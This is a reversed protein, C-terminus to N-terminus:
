YIIQINNQVSDLKSNLTITCNENPISNLIGYLTTGDGEDVYMMIDPIIWLILLSRCMNIPTEKNESQKLIHNTLYPWPHWETSINPRTTLFNNKNIYDYM